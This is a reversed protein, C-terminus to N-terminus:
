CGQGAPCPWATTPACSWQSAGGMGSPAPCVCYGSKAAGSSDLYIGDVDCPVCPAVKCAQSAQPATTPCSSDVVTPIRYCSYDGPPFSCGSQEVYVSSTCTESKFGKSEPGCAKYCLQPDADVCIGNKTPATGAQTSLDACLPRFSTGGGAAGLGSPDGLGVAGGNAFSGRSGGSGWAGGALVRVTSGGAGGSGSLGGLGVAGGNAFSGRSGGSGWAGGAPVKVTSGGAGGSGGPMSATGTLAVAAAGITLAGTAPGGRTPAFVVGITCTGVPQTALCTNSTITFGSGATATPNLAVPGGSVTVTVTESTSVAGVAITGFDLVTKDVKFTGPQSSGSSGGPGAIGGTGPLEVVGGAGMAGGRGGANGGTGLTGGTSIAADTKPGGADPVPAYHGPSYNPLSATSVGVPRTCAGAECTFGARDKCSVNKCSKALYLVLERAQDPLFPLIAEQSVIDVGRHSGVATVSISLDRDSAPVLALQVPIQVAGAVIDRSLVVPYDLTEEKGLVRIRLGDMETPVDLDSWVTVVLKTNDKSKGCGVLGLVLLFPSALCAIKHTQM